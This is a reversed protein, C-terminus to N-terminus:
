RRNQGTREVDTAARDAENEQDNNDNQHKAALQLPKHRKLVGPPAIEGALHAKPCRSRANVAPNYVGWIM